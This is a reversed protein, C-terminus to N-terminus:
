AGGKKADTVAKLHKAVLKVLGDAWAPPLDGTPIFPRAPITVQKAYITKGSSGVFRLIGAGKTMGCRNMHPVKSAKIVAGWQHTPAYCVNTGVTVAGVGGAQDVRTTISSQLRGTDRLPQGSRHKLPAWPAGSPAQGNRFGMRIRSQLSRGITQLVPNINAGEASIAAVMAQVLEVGQLEIKQKM